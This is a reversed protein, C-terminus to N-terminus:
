GDMCGELEGGPNASGPSAGNLTSSSDGFRGTNFCLIERLGDRYMKETMDFKQEIAKSVASSDLTHTGGGLPPLRCQGVRGEARSVTRIVLYCHCSVLAGPARPCPWAPVRSRVCIHTMTDHPGHKQSIRPSVIRVIHPNYTRRLPLDITIHARVTMTIQTRTVCMVSATAQPFLNLLIFRFLFPISNQM